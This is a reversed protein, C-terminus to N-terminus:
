TTFSHYYRGAVIKSHTKALGATKLPYLNPTIDVLDYIRLPNLNIYLVYITWYLALSLNYGIYQKILIYACIVFRLLLHLIQRIQLSQFTRVLVLIPDKCTSELRAIIWDYFCTEYDVLVRDRWATGALWVSVWEWAKATNPITQRRFNSITSTRKSQIISWHINWHQSRVPLWTYLTIQITEDRRNRELITFM